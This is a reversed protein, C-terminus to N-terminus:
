APEKALVPSPNLLKRFIAISTKREVVPRFFRADFGPEYSLNMARQMHSNDHEVLTILTYLPWCNITKVTCVENVLPFNMGYKSAAERGAPCGDDSSGGIRAVKQGVRFNNSM